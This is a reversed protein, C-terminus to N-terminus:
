LDWGSSNDTKPLTKAPNNKKAPSKAAPAAKASPAAAPAAAPAGGAIPCLQDSFKEVTKPGIGKVRTIDSFSNFAGQSDRSAVIDAAKKDGIGKLSTLESASASNINICGGPAAGASAKAASQAAPATKAPTKTTQKQPAAPAQGSLALVEQLTNIRVLAETRAEHEVDPSAVFQTYYHIALPFDAKSECARGMNYLLATMQKIAYAEQFKELALDYNGDAYAKSATKVVSQFSEPKASLSPSLTFCLALAAVFAFLRLAGNHKFYLM